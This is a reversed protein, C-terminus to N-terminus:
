VFNTKYVKKQNQLIYIVLELVGFNNEFLLSIINM